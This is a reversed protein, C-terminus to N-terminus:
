EGSERYERPSQSSWRKFQRSFHAIDRYGLLGSIQSVSLSHDDLLVKAEHLMQESLYVRPSIGFVQRFVRYCHSASIGLESAIDDIGYHSDGPLEQKFQQYVLGQLRSRIQHALEIKEYTGPSSIDAELSFVEWLQAFLDFVAAQLRMRQSMTIGGPESAAIEVLRSLVPGLRHAIHSESTFLVPNLRSLLSILLKDDIDFHICFYTFPRGNGSRSSHTDGPRLLVLDGARQLFSHNNVILQQEGELVYNFEYQPHAHQPYDWEASVKRLHMGFLNLTTKVDPIITESLSQGPVPPVFAAVM